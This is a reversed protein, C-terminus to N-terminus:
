RNRGLNHSLRKVSVNMTSPCATNKYVKRQNATSTRPATNNQRLDVKKFFFTVTVNITYYINVKLFFYACNQLRSRYVMMCKLM